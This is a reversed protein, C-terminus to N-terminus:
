ELWGLFRPAGDGAVDSRAITEAKGEGVVAITWPATTGVVVVDGALLALPTAGPPLGRFSSLREGDADIREVRSTTGGAVRRTVLMSTGDLSIADPLFAADTARRITETGRQGAAIRRLFYPAQGCPEPEGSRCRRSTGEGYFLAQGSSSVVFNALRTTRTGAVLSANGTATDLAYLGPAGEPCQCFPVEYLLGGGLSWAVPLLPEPPYQGGRKRPIATAAGTSLDVTVTSARPTLAAVALRRDEPSLASGEFSTGLRGPIQGIRKMGARSVTWVSGDITALAVL